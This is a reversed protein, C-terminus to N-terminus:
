DYLLAACEGLRRRYEARGLTSCLFVEGIAERVIRTSARARDRETDFIGVVSAGSGSMFTASAGARQLAVYAREVEPYSRRVTPEFDNRLFAQWELKEIKRSVALINEGKENTLPPANLLAYARATSVAVPPAVILLCPADIEKLPEIETGTGAGRATGGFFFFPVDAGLAAGIKLLDDRGVPLQWLRALALLTMAANSSGGGLGGGIPIRKALRVHVGCRVRCRERLAQAAKYILNGEDTPVDARDCEIEIRDDRARTFILTDHLSVTQMITIIEHLGDSRRGLVRLTWNIKAFSPLEVREM